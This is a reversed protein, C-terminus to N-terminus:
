FVKPLLIEFSTIISYDMIRINTMQYKQCFTKIGKKKYASYLAEMLLLSSFISVCYNIKLHIVGGHYEDIQAM